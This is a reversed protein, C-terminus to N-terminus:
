SLSISTRAGFSVADARFELLPSELLEAGIDVAAIGQQFHGNLTPEM